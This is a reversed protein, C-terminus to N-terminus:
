ANNLKTEFQDINKIARDLSQEFGRVERIAASIGRQWGSVDLELSYEIKTKGAM